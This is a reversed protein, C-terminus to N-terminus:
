SKKELAARRNRIEQLRDNIDRKWRVLELQWQAYAAMTEDGRSNAVDRLLPVADDIKDMRLLCGATLYIIPMRENSKKGQLDIKKFAELSEPYKGAKMLSQALALSDVPQLLHPTKDQVQTAADDSKKPEVPKEPNKAVQPLPEPEPPNNREEQLFDLARKLKNQIARLDNENPKQQVFVRKKSETAKRDNALAEREAKMRALSEEFETPSFKQLAPEDHLRPVPLPLPEPDASVALTLAAMCGPAALMMRAIRFNM